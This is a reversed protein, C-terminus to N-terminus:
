QACWTQRRCCWCNYAITVFYCAPHRTRTGILVDLLTTKGGLGMPGISLANADALATIELQALKPDTSRQGIPRLLQLKAEEYGGARDGGIAVGLIGPACGRGQASFVADLICKRVGELDRGAGLRSDPLSYQTGVNESGGGKLMVTVKLQTFDGELWHYAPSASGLNNGTNSGSVSEVCNQRLLGRRTAEVVAADAAAQFRKHSFGEPAEIFFHITGTDQCLPLRREKALRINELLTGMVAAGASGAVETDAAAAIATEVDEPLATSAKEILELLPQFLDDPTSM